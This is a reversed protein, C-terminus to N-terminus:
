PFMPEVDDPVSVASLVAMAEALQRLNEELDPPPDGAPLVQALREKLWRYAEDQSVPPHLQM